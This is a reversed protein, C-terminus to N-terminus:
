NANLAEVAREMEAAVLSAVTEPTSDAALPAVVGPMSTIISKAVGLRAEFEEVVDMVKRVEGRELHRQLELLEAQTDAQLTALAVPTLRALDVEEDPAAQVQSGDDASLDTLAANILDRLMRHAEQADKGAVMRAEDPLRRLRTAVITVQEGLIAAIDDHTVVSRRLAEAEDLVRRVRARQRRLNADVLPQPEPQAGPRTIAETLLRDAVEPIILREPTLAANLVGRKVYKRIAAESV